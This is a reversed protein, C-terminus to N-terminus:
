NCTEKLLTDCGKCFLIQIYKNPNVVKFYIPYSSAQNNSLYWQNIRHVNLFIVCYKPSLEALM